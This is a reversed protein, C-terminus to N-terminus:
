LEEWPWTASAQGLLDRDDLLLPWRSAPLAARRGLQLGSVAGAPKQGKPAALVADVLGPALLTVPPAVQSPAIAQPQGAASTAVAPLQPSLSLLAPGQSGERVGRGAAGSPARAPSMPWSADNLLISVDDSYYNAAALDPWGDGNFDAVAGSDPDRGAVYSNPTTQFSGDGNGLLVSVTGFSNVVALDPLGDRNFDGVAVAYGGPGYTIPPQFTGDGNGLLVKGSNTVLDPLGDGNFDGVAVASPYEGAPFDRAPQFTGDGNGLLVSVNASNANATALDAIGDRNFDGVAVSVPISGVAYSPAAEFAGGGTGLLVSVDRYEAVALDPLGDGNFEGVAVASPNYGAPFSRAPQFSGDGTGLLVLVEYYSGVALDPIGDGNFDGVALSRSYGGAPFSRAPQFTGDGLGLLLSVDSREFSYNVVALDLVGDGNFDAVAVGFPQSGVPFFRAPQFTGDGAGPLVSVTNSNLNAVALDPLGDGNFDGVAVAIPQRGGTAFNGPDQFSGDGNGLLVSVSGPDTTGNGYNAVALDQFGDGNFDGVAVSVPQRAGTPLGVPAHFSGDGNGLLVSVTGNVAANAVALDPLGDGNFDGVAVARPSAGAPFARAAQFTGDGNGLLVSVTNSGFNAVALDLTGDGNFDGVAV